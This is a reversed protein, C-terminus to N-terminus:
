NIIIIIEIFLGKIKNSILLAYIRLNPYSGPLGQVEVCETIKVTDYPYVCEAKTDWLGQPTLELPTFFGKDKFYNRAATLTSISKM